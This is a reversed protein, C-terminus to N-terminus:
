QHVSNNFLSYYAKKLSVKEIKQDIYKQTASVANSFESENMAAFKGISEQLGESLKEPQLAFGCGFLDLDAFPTTTTTIVPKGASLAEVIAHGFNESKSPMIFVQFREMAKALLHPPLEGHYFVKINPPLQRIMAQCNSWYVDDKVPGFIHWEIITSVQSLARLVELHNKMPSILAITGLLLKGPQKDPSGSMSQLNPFNAAVNVHMKEGMTMKIFNRENDDTAHWTVIRHISLMRFLALYIKKKGAKQSLAGPHLMGRTSLVINLAKRKSKLQKAYYLPLFNFYLSYLGNVYIVDPSIDQILKQLVRKKSWGYQWYFVNAKGEWNNWHDAIINELLAVDGMEHPKCVVYFDYVEYLERVLNVLSQTPGGAKYSPYFHDYFILIRQKM